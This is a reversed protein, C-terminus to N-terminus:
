GYKLISTIISKTKAMISFHERGPVFAFRLILYHSIVIAVPFDILNWHNLPAQFCIIIARHAQHGSPLFDEFFEREATCGFRNTVSFSLKDIRM